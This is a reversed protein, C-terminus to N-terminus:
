LGKCSMWELGECVALNMFKVCFSTLFKLRVVYYFGIKKILQALKSTMLSQSEYTKHVRVATLM